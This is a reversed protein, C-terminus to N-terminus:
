AFSRAPHRAPGPSQQPVPTHSPESALHRATVLGGASLRYCRRRPSGDGALQPNWYGEVLGADELEDIANYVAPGSRHIGKKIQWGDLERGDRNAQLLLSLVGEASKGDRKAVTVCM